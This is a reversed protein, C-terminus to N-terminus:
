FRVFRALTPEGTLAIFIIAVPVVSSSLVIAKRVVGSTRYTQILNFLLVLLSLLPMVVFHVTVWLFGASDGGILFSGLELAVYLIALLLSAPWGGFRWFYHLLGDV